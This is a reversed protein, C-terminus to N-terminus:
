RPSSGGAWCRTGCRPSFRAEVADRDAGAEALRHDVRSQFESHIMEWVRPVFNLETPRTLALDELLTSLDSRAAFYCTGGAALSAYLIGRGM